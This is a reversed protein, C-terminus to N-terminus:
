EKKDEEGDGGRCRLCLRNGDRRAAEFHYGGTRGGTSKVIQIIYHQCVLGSLNGDIINVVGASRNEAAVGRLYGYCTGGM